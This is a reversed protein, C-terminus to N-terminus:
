VHARGIQSGVSHSPEDSSAYESGVPGADDTDNATRQCPARGATSHSCCPSGTESVAGTTAGPQDDDAAM